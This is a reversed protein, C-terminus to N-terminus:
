VKSEIELSYTPKPLFSFTKCSAAFNDPTSGFDSIHRKGAGITPSYASRSASTVKFSHSTNFCSIVCCSKHSINLVSVSKNGHKISIFNLPTLTSTSFAAKNFFLNAVSSFFISFAILFSDLTSTSIQAPAVM